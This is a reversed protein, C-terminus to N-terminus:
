RSPFVHNKNLRIVTNSIYFPSWINQHLDDLSLTRPGLWLVQVQVIQLVDAQESGRASAYVRDDAPPLYELKGGNRNGDFMLAVGLQWSTVANGGRGLRRRRLGSPPM